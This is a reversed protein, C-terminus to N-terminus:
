DKEAAALLSDQQSKSFAIFRMLLYSPTKTTFMGGSQKAKL